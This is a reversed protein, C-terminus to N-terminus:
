VFTRRMMYCYIKAVYTAAGGGRLFKPRFKQRGMSFIAENPIHHSFNQIIAPLTSLIAVFAVINNKAVNVKFSALICILHDPGGYQTQPAQNESFVRM